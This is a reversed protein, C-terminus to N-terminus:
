CNFLEVCSFIIPRATDLRRIQRAGDPSCQHSCHAECGSVTQARPVKPAGRWQAGLAHVSVVARGFWTCICTLFFLLTRTTYLMYGDSSWAANPADFIASHMYKLDNEMDFALVHQTSHHKKHNSVFDKVTAHLYSRTKGHWSDACLFVHLKQFVYLKNNIGQALLLHDRVVYLTLVV